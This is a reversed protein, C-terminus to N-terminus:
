LGRDEAWKLWAKKMLQVKGRDTEPVPDDGTIAKLAWYWYGGRDRLEQFILPLADSGMGIIQQYAPHIAIDDTSSLFGTAEKWEVVLSEFKSQIPSAGYDPELITGERSSQPTWDLNWHCHIVIPKVCAKKVIRHDAPPYSVAKAWGFSSSLIAKKLGTGISRDLEAVPYLKM